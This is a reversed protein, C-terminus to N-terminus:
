YCKTNLPVAVIVSETENDLDHFAIDITGYICLSTIRKLPLFRYCDNDVKRNYCVVASSGFYDHQEHKEFWHVYAFIHDKIDDQAVPLKHQIFYQIEGVSLQFCQGNFESSCTPWYACIVINGDRSTLRSGYVDGALTARSSKRAFRPLNQLNTCVAPYLIQYTFQISAFINSDFIIHKLPPLCKEYKNTSFDLDEDLLPKSFRALHVIDTVHLYMALSGSVQPLIDEIIAKFSQDEQPFEQSYLEQLILCKKMLQSEINRLNTPFKGLMGNYREFPFCWFAYLPGYNLICDKLHLHLHMNPTCKEPGNVTQFKCCFMYLYKDALELNEYHLCPVCLLKCAKVFLLWYQLHENPLLGRLVVASYYITWNKWQDATFGSFGSLIKIPLRGASHPAHLSCMKEEIIQLDRKKFNGTKAM